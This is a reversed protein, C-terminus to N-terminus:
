LIGLELHGVVMAVAMVVMGIIWLVVGFPLRPAVYGDALGLWRAAILALLWWGMVPAFIYLAGVAWLAWTGVISWYLVKEESTEPLGYATTMGDGMSNRVASHARRLLRGG